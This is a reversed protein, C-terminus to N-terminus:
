RCKWVFDKGIMEETIEFVSENNGKRKIESVFSGREKCTDGIIKKIRQVDGKEQNKNM